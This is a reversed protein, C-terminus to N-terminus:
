RDPAELRPRSWRGFDRRRGPTAAPADGYQVWVEAGDDLAEFEQVTLSFVLTHLDGGPHRSITFSRAGIHMTALEGLVPFPEPSVLAIEVAPQGALATSSAIREVRAITSDAGTTRCSM